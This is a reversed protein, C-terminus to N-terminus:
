ICFTFFHFSWGPNHISLQSIVNFPSPSRLSPQPLSQEESTPQLITGLYTPPASVKRKESLTFPRMVGSATKSLDIWKSSTDQLNREPHDDDFTNLMHDTETHIFRQSSDPSGICHRLPKLIKLIEFM